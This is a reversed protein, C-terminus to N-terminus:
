IPERDDHDKIGRSTGQMKFDPRGAVAAVTTLATRVETWIKKSCDEKEGMNPIIVQM